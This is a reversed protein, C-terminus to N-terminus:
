RVIWARVLTELAFTLLVSGGALAEGWPYESSFGLCPDTLASVSDPLVHCFATALVVGAAFCTGLFFLANLNRFKLLLPLFGGIASTGLIAFLAGVRLGLIANQDALGAGCEDGEM